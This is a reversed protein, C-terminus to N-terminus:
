TKINSNMYDTRLSTLQLVLRQWFNVNQPKGSRDLIVCKGVEVRDSMSYKIKMTRWSIVMIYKNNINEVQM